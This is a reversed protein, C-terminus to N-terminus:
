RKERWVMYNRMKEKRQWKILPSNVIKAYNAPYPLGTASSHLVVPIKRKM